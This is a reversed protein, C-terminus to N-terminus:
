LAAANPPHVTFCGNTCGAADTLIPETGVESAVCCRTNPLQATRPPRGMGTVRGEKHTSRDCGAKRFNVVPNGADYGDHPLFGVLLMRLTFCRERPVM